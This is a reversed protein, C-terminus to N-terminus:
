GIDLIHKIHIFSHYKINDQMCATHGAHMPKVLCWSNLCGLWPRRVAYMILRCFYLSLSVVVADTMKLNMLYNDLLVFSRCGLCLSVM